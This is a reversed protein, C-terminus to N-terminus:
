NFAIENLILDQLGFMTKKEKPVEHDYGLLHLMGHTFLFCFEYDFSHQYEKAQKQVVPYCIFIDGLNDCNNLEKQYLYYFPFALVDTPYDKQRYQKNLKQSEKENILFLDLVWNKNKDLETNKEVLRTIKNLKVKLGTLPYKKENFINLQCVM